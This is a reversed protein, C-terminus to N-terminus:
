KVAGKVTLTVPDSTTVTAYVCAWRGFLPYQNMSEADAVAASVFSLGDVYASNDISYQLKLTTTNVAAMDIKWYLDVVSYDPVDFCNSRQSTTIVKTNIFTPFEPAVGRPPVTIPTPAAMPAAQSSQTNLGLAVLVLVAMVVVTALLGLGIGRRNTM